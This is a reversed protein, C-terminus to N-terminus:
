CPFCHTPGSLAALMICFTPPSAAVAVAFPKRRVPLPSKARACRRQKEVSMGGVLSCVGVGAPAVAVLHAAVQHALERTPAIILAYPARPAEEAHGWATAKGCSKGRPKGARGKRAAANADANADAAWTREDREELLRQLIPLGFALTKGSGTEAAGVIDRRGHLAAPLCMSQIATPTVFGNTGLASVLEEHLSYPRWGESAAALQASPDAGAAEAHEVVVEEAEEEEAPEEEEEVEEEEDEEDDDDEEEEEVIAHREKRKSAKAPAPVPEDKTRSTAKGAATKKDAKIEEVLSAFLDGSVDATKVKRKSEAKLKKSVAKSEKSAAPPAVEAEMVEEIRDRKKKKKKSKELPEHPADFTSLPVDDVELSMFGQEAAWRMAEDSMEFTKFGTPM